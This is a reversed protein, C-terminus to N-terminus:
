LYILCNTKLFMFDSITKIELQTDGELEETIELAKYQRAGSKSCKSHLRKRNKLDFSFTPFCFSTNYSCASNKIFNKPSILGKQLAVSVGTKSKQHHRGRTEFGSQTGNSEQKTVQM